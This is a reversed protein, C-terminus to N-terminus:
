LGIGRAIVERQSDAFGMNLQAAKAKRYYLHLDHDIMIAVGGHIHIADATIGTYVRGAELQAMTALPGCAVGASNMWAVKYTLWRAGAIALSMDALKFQIAQYTGIPNGFAERQKVFDLAMEFCMQAGGIMEACTMIHAKEMVDRLTAEDIKGLQGDPPVRVGDYIIESLRGSLTDLPNCTLGTSAAPVLFLGTGGDTTRAVTMIWDAVHGHAVFLKSGNIVYEDGDGVASTVLLDLNSGGEAESLACGMVLAGSAIGPLLEGKQADTGCALLLQGGVVVTSWHPSQLLARGAEEYFLATDVWDGGMGGYEEPIMLGMWGLEGMKRYLDRDYDLKREDIERVLSRPCEKEMFGRVAKRFMVQGEDFGFEM